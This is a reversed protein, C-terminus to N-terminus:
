ITPKVIFGLTRKLNSNVKLPLMLPLPECAILSKKVIVRGCVM